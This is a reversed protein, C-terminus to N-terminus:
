YGRSDYTGGATTGRSSLALARLLLALVIVSSVACYFELGLTAFFLVVGRALWFFGIWLWYDPAYPALVQQVRPYDTYADLAVCIWFFWVAVNIGFRGLVPTGMEALTPLLLGGMLLLGAMAPDPMPVPVAMQQIMRAHIEGFERTADIDLFWIWPWLFFNIATLIGALIVCTMPNNVSRVLRLGRGVQESIDLSELVGNLAQLM